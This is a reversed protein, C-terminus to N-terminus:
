LLILIINEENNCMKYVCVNIIIDNIIINM